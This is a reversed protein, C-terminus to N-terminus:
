LPWIVYPSLWQINVRKKFANWSEGPAPSYGDQMACWVYFLKAYYKEIYHWQENADRLKLYVEGQHEPAPGANLGVKSHLAGGWYVFYEEYPNNTALKKVKNIAMEELM